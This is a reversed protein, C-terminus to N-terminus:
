TQAAPVPVRLAAVTRARRGQEAPTHPSPTSTAGLTRLAAVDPYRLRRLDTANIQTHGSFQRIYDDVLDSGLYVALGAALEPDLGRGNTHFVNLHNEFAVAPAGGYADPASVAAVVRRREEKASFRKVVVFHENPLLLRETRDDIVLAQPKRGAIPWHVTGGNLNQAYVLPAAGPGPGARLQERSRFDVVKGTSVELGLDPLTAPLALMAAAVDAAEDTLPLRVFREPDEPHVIEDHHRSAVTVDGDADHSSSMSVAGPPAGVRMSFVVNEQLVGADAFVRDRTDYVHLREFSARALLERRLDRFYPGNAFSRPTIAVLQGGPVLARVAQVLFGAYANTVRVPDAGEALAQREESAVGLKRYPPNMLVVNASGRQPPETVFNAHRIEFRLTRGHHLALVQAERLTEELAPLLGDDLEYAVVEMSRLDTEGLWRAVLAAALSGVGAGPDLLQWPGAPPPPMAALLAAPATPTFFQGLHARRRPEIAAAAEVRRQEVATLFNVVTDVRGNHCSPRDNGLTAKAQTFRPPSHAM